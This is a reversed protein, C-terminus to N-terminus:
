AMAMRAANKRRTLRLGGGIMGAGLLMLAWTGPEPVATTFTGDDEVYAYSPSTVINFFNFGSGDVNLAYVVENAGSGTSALIAYNSLTQPFLDDYTYNAGGTNPVNQYTSLGTIPDNPDVGPIPDTLSIFTLAKGDYHGTLSSVVGTSQDYTIQGAGDNTGAFTWDVTTARAAESSMLLSLAGALALMKNKM